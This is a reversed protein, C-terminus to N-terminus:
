DLIQEFDFKLSNKLIPDEYLLTNQRNRLFIWDISVQIYKEYKLAQYRFIWSNVVRKKMEKNLHFLTLYRLVLEDIEKKDLEINLDAYTAISQTIEAIEFNEEAFEKKRDMERTKRKFYIENMKNIFSFKMKIKPEEAYM